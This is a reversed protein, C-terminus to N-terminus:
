PYSVCRSLSMHYDVRSTWAKVLPSVEHPKSRNCRRVHQLLEVVIKSDEAVVKVLRALCSPHLHIHQM